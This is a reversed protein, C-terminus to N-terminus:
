QVTLIWQYLVCNFEFIFVLLETEKIYSHSVGTIVRIIEFDKPVDIVFTCIFGFEFIAGYLVIPTNLPKRECAYLIHM